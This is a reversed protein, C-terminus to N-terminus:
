PTIAIEPAAPVATMQQVIGPNTSGVHEQVFATRQAEATSRCRGPVAPLQDTRINRAALVDYVVAIALM